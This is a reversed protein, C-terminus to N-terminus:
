YDPMASKQTVWGQQFVILGFTRCFSVLWEFSLTYCKSLSTSFIIALFRLIFLDLYLM